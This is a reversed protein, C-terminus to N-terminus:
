YGSDYRRFWTQQRKAYQCIETFLNQVMEEKSIKNQLLRAVWKFELGLKELYEFSLNYKEKVNAIEEIMGSEIRELLRKYIKEHLKEKDIKINIIELRYESESFRKEKQLEPIHGIASVIEIARMLRHPNNRYELDSFKSLTKLNKFFFKLNSFYFLKWSLIKYLEPTDKSELKTRLEPNQKVDPLHYDYLLSDIYFGTGGCVIPTNGRSIIEETKKLALETFDVASFYQGPNIIDLLHHSINEMEEMTVKGSSLNFDRYIQRSDASIIEANGIKKALEISLATKGSSTPGIVFYITKKTSNNLTSERM